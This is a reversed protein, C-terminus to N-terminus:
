TLRTLADGLSEWIRTEFAILEDEPMEGAMVIEVPFYYNVIATSMSPM